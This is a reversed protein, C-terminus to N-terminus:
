FLFRVVLLAGGITTASGAAVVGAIAGRLAAPEGTGICGSPFASGGVFETM